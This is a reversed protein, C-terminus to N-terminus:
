IDFFFRSPNKKILMDITIQDVGEMRMMPIINTYVHDYGWGGYKHLMTKLCVDNALLLREGHGESVLKKIMRVRTLDTEFPGGSFAGPQSEFYYEKGFNDFEIYINKKLALKLYEYDFSVDLHCLCIRKPSVGADLVIDVADLGVRSWPYTHIFIPLDTHLSAIAAAKLSREEVPYIKESTGIEGIVGAKIDTGEIGNKIEDIMWNALEDVTWSLYESPISDHTFLGCGIVINIESGDSVEKLKHIDRGLGISTLDVLLKSGTNSVYNIENIADHIDDLILNNKMVYPNRRLLGINNMKIESDFIEKEVESKPTVAEHTMDIFIHEHPYIIGTEDPYISGKITNIFKM